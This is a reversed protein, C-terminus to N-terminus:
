TTYKEEIEILVAPDRTVAARVIESLEAASIPRYPSSGYGAAGAVAASLWRNLSVGETAALVTARHHLEPPLRLSLQGSFDRTAFPEPIAAGQELLLAIIAYLADKVDAVAQDPTDGEGIAGPLELVQATWAKAESDEILTITYPRAAIQIAQQELESSTTM